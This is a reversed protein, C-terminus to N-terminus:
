KGRRGQRDRGSVVEKGQDPFVSRSKTREEKRGVVM